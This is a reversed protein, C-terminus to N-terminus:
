EEGVIENLLRNLRDAKSYQPFSKVEELSDKSKKMWAGNTSPDAVLDFCILQLDEEVLTVNGAERVSGMARSSIGLPCGGDILKKAIEGSPTNLIKIKGMVDDGDWWIDVVTHSVNRLNVVSDDPHDLEGLARNEQVLKKYNEVERKLVNRPYVRGNGNKADARQMVGTLFMTGDRVQQKEAETLFDQCIGGDCLEYYERLLHKKM